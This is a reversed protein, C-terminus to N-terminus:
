NSIIYGLSTLLSLPFNFILDFISKFRYAYHRILNFKIIHSNFSGKKCKMNLFFNYEFKEIFPIELIKM